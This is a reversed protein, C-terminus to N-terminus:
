EMSVQNIMTILVTQGNPATLVDWSVLQSQVSIGDQKIILPIDLNLRQAHKAAERLTKIIGLSDIM